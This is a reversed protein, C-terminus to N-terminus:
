VLYAIKYSYLCSVFLFQPDSGTCQEHIEHFPEKYMDKNNFNKIEAVGAM